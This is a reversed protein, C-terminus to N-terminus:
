KDSCRSVFNSKSPASDIDSRLLTSASVNSPKVLEPAPPMKEPSSPLSLPLIPSPPSSDTRRKRASSSAKKREPVVYHIGELDTGVAPVAMTNAFQAAFATLEAETGKFEQEGTSKAWLSGDNLGVIAARQIYSSSAMLNAIYADWGSAM